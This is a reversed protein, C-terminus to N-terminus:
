MIDEVFQAIMEDGNLYWKKKDAISIYENDSNLYPQHITAKAVPAILIENIEEMPTPYHHYLDLKPSQNEIRWLAFNKNFNNHEPLRFDQLKQEPWVFKSLMLLGYANVCLRKKEPAIVMKAYGDCVAQLDHEMAHADRKHLNYLYSVVAREWLPKKGSIFKEAKPIAKELIKSDDYWMGILLNSACVYFPYGNATIGLEHPFRREVASDDGCALADLVFWLSICHDYGSGSLIGIFNYRTQQFIVNNLQQMNGSDFADNLWTDYDTELLKKCLCLVVRELREKRSYEGQTQKDLVFRQYNSAFDEAYLTNMM